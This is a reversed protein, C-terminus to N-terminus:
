VLRFVVIVAVLTIWLVTLTWWVSFTMWAYAIIYLILLAVTVAWGVSALQRIVSISTWFAAISVVTFLGFFFLAMGFGPLM